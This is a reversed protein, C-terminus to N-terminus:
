SSLLIDNHGIYIKWLWFNLSSFRISFFFMELKYRVARSSILLFSAWILVSWSLSTLLLLFYTADWCHTMPKVTNNYNCHIGLYLTQECRSLRQFNCNCSSLGKIETSFKDLGCEWTGSILLCLFVKLHYFQEHQPLVLFPMSELSKKTSFPTRSFPFHTRSNKSNKWFLTEASTLYFQFFETSKLDIFWSTSHFCPM